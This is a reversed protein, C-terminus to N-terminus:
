RDECELFVANPTNSHGPVNRYDNVLALQNHAETADLELPDPWSTQLAANCLM